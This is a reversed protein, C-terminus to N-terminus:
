KTAVVVLRPENLISGQEIPRVTIKPKVLLFAEALLSAFANRVRGHNTVFTFCTSEDFCDIGQEERESYLHNRADKTSRSFLNEYLSRASFWLKAVPHQINVIFVKVDSFDRFLERADQVENFHNIGHNTENPFNIVAKGGPRLHKYINGIFPNLDTVHELVDSSYVTDFTSGLDLREECFDCSELHLNKYGSGFNARMYEITKESQDVGWVVADKRSAAYRFAFIGIGCGVELVSTANKDLFLESVQYSYIVANPSGFPRRLVSLM